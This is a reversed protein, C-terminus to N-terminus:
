ISGQINWLKVLCKRKAACREKLHKGKANSSEDHFLGNKDKVEFLKSLALAAIPATELTPLPWAKITADITDDMSLNNLVNRFESRSALTSQHTLTTASSSSFSNAPVEDTPKESPRLPTSTSPAGVTPATKLTPVLQDKMTTDTTDDM